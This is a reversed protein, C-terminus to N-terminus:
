CIDKNRVEDEVGQGDFRPDCGITFPRENNSHCGVSFVLASLKIEFKEDQSCVLQRM